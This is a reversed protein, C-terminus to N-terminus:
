VLTEPVQRLVNLMNETQMVAFLKTLVQSKTMKYKVHNQVQKRKNQYTVKHTIYEKVAKM